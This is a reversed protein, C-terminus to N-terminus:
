MIELQQPLGSAAALAVLLDYAEDYEKGHLNFTQVPLLKGSHFRLGVEVRWEYEVEFRKFGAEEFELLSYESRRLLAVGFFRWEQTVLERPKDILTIKDLALFFPAM